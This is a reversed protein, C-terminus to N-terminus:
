EASGVAEESFTGPLAMQSILECNLKGAGHRRADGALPTDNPASM